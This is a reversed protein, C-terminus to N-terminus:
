EELEEDIGNEDGFYDNIFVKNVTYSVAKTNASEPFSIAFAPVHPFKVNDNEEDPKQKLDLSKLM